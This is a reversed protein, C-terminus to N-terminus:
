ERIIILINMEFVLENSLYMESGYINMLNHLQFKSYGDQDPEPPKIEEIGLKRHYDIYYRIGYPTLKVKVYDNINFSVHLSTKKSFTWDEIHKKFVPDIHEHMEDILMFPNSKKMREDADELSKICDRLFNILLLKIKKM